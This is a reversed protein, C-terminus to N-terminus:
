IAADKPFHRQPNLIYYGAGIITLPIAVVMFFVSWGFLNVYDMMRINSPEAPDYLFIASNGIEWSPPNSGNHRYTVKGNQKTDVTFVPAYVDDEEDKVMSTVIGIARRAKRAFDIDAKLNHLSVALLVLGTILFLLYRM